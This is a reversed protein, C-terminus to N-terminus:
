WIVDVNNWGDGDFSSFICADLITPYVNAKKCLEQIADEVFIYSNIDSLMTSSLKIPFGFDNFWKIIRSDLPIEYKTLGLSQLFNRSQKPGFGKITIDLYNAVDRENEKSNNAKLNKL